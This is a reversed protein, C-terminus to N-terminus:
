VISLSNFTFCLWQILVTLTYTIYTLWHNCIIYETNTVIRPQFPPHYEFTNLYFQCQKRWYQIVDMTLTDCRLVHHLRWLMMAFILYRDFRWLLLVSSFQFLSSHHLVNLYYITPDTIFISMTRAILTARNWVTCRVVFKVMGAFSFPQPM